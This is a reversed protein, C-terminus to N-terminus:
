WQYVVTKIVLVNCCHKPILAMLAVIIGWICKILHQITKHPTLYENCLGVWQEQLMGMKIILSQQSMLAQHPIYTNVCLSVYNM